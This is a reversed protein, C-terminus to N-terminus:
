MLGIAFVASVGIKRRPELQLNWIIRLPLLLIMLDSITNTAASAMWLGEGSMCGTQSLTWANKVPTCRFLDAFFLITYFALDGWILGHCTWFMSASTKRLAFIRMLQIILAFKALWFM